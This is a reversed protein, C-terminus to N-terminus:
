KPVEVKFITGRKIKQVIGKEDKTETYNDEIWIESGHLQAIKRTIALGLGTGKVGKKHVRELRRFVAERYKEPIGEGMDAVSLIYHPGADELDIRVRSGRPSYKIANSILNQFIDEFMPNIYVIAPEEINNEVIMGKEEIEGKFNNIQNTVSSQLDAQERELDDSNELQAMRKADAILNNINRAANNITRIDMVRIEDGGGELELEEELMERSINNIVGAKNSLDHRLVDSFLRSMENSHALQKNAKVLDSRAVDLEENTARLEEVVATLEENKGALEQNQTDVISKSIDLEENTARLEENIATLEENKNNIEIEMRKRQSIDRSVEIVQIIEGNKDKIPSCLLEVYIENGDRDFHKHTVMASDGTELVLEMPCIDHPAECPRDRKHSIEYCKRGIIEDRSLKMNKTITPNIEMLNHDLGIVMIGEDISNMLNEIKGKAEMLDLTRDEVKKELNESHDKLDDAMENFAIALTGVEDNSKIEARVGLDTRMRKTIDTLMEIPDIIRKLLLLAMLSLLVLGFFLLPMLTEQMERVPAFIESLPIEVVLGINTSAQPMYVIRMLEEGEECPATIIGRYGDFIRMIQEQESVDLNIKEPDTHVIIKGFPSVLYSHGREGISTKTLLDSFLEEVKSDIAIVGKLEGKYYVPQSLTLMPEPYEKSTYIESIFTEGKELDLTKVYWYNDSVEISEYSRKGNVINIRANGYLDYYRISTYEKKLSGLKMLSEQIASLRQDAQEALSFELYNYYEDFEKNTQIVNLDNQIHSIKGSIGSNVTDAVLLLNKDAEEQLSESTQLYIFTGVFTFFVLLPVIFYLLFKEFIRM